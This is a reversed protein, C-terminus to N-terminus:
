NSILRKEEGEFESKGNKGKGLNKKSDSLNELTWFNRPFNSVKVEDNKRSDDDSTDPTLNDAAPVVPAKSTTNNVTASPSSGRSRKGNRNTERTESMVM